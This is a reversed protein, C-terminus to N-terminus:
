SIIDDCDGQRQLKDLSNEKGMEEGLLKRVTGGRKGHQERSRNLRNGGGCDAPNGMAGDCVMGIVRGIGETLTM